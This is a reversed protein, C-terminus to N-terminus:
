VDKRQYFYTKFVSDVNYIERGEFCDALQYDKMFATFKTESFFWAPYSARYISPPIKQVTLRDENRRITPHKDILLYKPRKNMIERLVEYPKPLYPLVCGLLVFDFPESDLIATLDTSFHLNETAFESNGIEVFPAQEIITWDFLIGPLSAAVPFYHTGLAGGFDLVRMIKGPEHAQEFYPLADWNFPESFAVGDREFIAKGDRVMRSADLVKKFIAQSDYSDSEREAEEWSAYNGFYGYPKWLSRFRLWFTILRRSIAM